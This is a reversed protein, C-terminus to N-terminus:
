LLLAGCECALRRRRLLPVCARRLEHGRELRLDLSRERLQTLRRLISQRLPALHPARPEGRGYESQKKVGRLVRLPM